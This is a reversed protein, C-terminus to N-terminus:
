VCCSCQPTGELKAHTAPIRYIYVCVCLLDRGVLRGAPSSTPVQVQMEMTAGTLLGGAVEGGWCSKKKNTKTHLIHASVVALDFLHLFLIKWLNITKREFSYYLLM